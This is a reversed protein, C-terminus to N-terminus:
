QARPQMPFGNLWNARLSAWPLGLSQSIPLWQSDMQAALWFTLKAKQPDFPGSFGKIGAAARVADFRVTSHVFEEHTKEGLAYPALWALTRSLSQGQTGTIEFLSVGNQQSFLAAELLPEVSYVVYHLADRQAFDIAAGSPLLNAEIQQSFQIKAQALLDPAGCTWAAMTSLKVRHSNWNNVSTSKSPDLRRQYTAALECSFAQMQAKLPTPLAQGASRYALLWFGLDSEDIPNGSIRYVALWASLYTEYRALYQAEGTAAHATALYAMLPWEKKALSATQYAETTALRGETHVIPLPHPARVLGPAAARRLQALDADSFAPSTQAFATSMILGNACVTAFYQLFKLLTLM